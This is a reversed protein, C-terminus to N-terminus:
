LNLSRKFFTAFGNSIGFYKQKYNLHNDDDLYYMGSTIHVSLSDIPFGESRKPHPKDVIMFRESAIDDGAYEHILGESLVLCIANQYRATLSGGFEQALASYHLIMEEDNLRRGNIRRVHVGPQRSDELGDIYLGSDCSFLPIKLANYYAIAKIRANELPSTGSEDIDIEPTMVDDLSLIEIGLPTVSEKMTQIKSKNSTGYLLKM